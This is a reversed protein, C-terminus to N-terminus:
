VCRSTYLLCGICQEPTLVSLKNRKCFGKLWDKGAMKEKNFKNSVGNIEVYDFAVKMIHNRTLGYFRSDLHRCHQALEREMEDTLVRKFRRLSVPITGQAFLCLCTYAISM